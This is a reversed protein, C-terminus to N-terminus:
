DLFSYKKGYEMMQGLFDDVYNVTIDTINGNLDFEPTLIPNVFGTYPALHLKSYRELIEAHLDANVKVGYDEIIKKGSDFDGESKIRQVERLMNGFLIRLKEYDNIKVFTKAEKKIFEVVNEAKGREYVWHCIASRNRMHAEEINKGPKIGVIQTLLGNRLYADYSERAAEIDNILGLELIKEDM